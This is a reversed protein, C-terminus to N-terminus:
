DLATVWALYTEGMMTRVYAASGSSGAAIDGRGPISQGYAGSRREKGLLLFGERIMEHATRGISGSTNWCDGSNIQMQWGALWTLTQESLVAMMDGAEVAEIPSGVDIVIDIRAALAMEAWAIGTILMGPEEMLAIMIPSPAVPKETVPTIGAETIMHTPAHKLELALIEEMTAPRVADQLM